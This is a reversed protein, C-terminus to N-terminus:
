NPRAQELAEEDTETGAQKGSDCDKEQEVPNIIAHGREALELVVEVLVHEALNRALLRLAFDREELRVVRSM